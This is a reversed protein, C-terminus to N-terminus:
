LEFKERKDHPRYVLKNNEHYYWLTLGNEGGIHERNIKIGNKDLIAKALDTNQEGITKEFSKNLFRSAGGILTTNIHSFSIRNERLVAMMYEISCNVFKFENSDPQNKFCPHPCNDSCLKDYKGRAPMQAHCILSLHNAKHFIVSICSGLVTWVIGEQNQILKIEGIGLMYSNISEEPNM